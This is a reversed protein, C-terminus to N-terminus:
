AAEKGTAAKEKFPDDTEVAVPPQTNGSWVWLWVVGKFLIRLRDFFSARWCSICQEGTRFIHLPACQEDTMSRPKQLVANSEKFKIPEM